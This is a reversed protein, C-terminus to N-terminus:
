PSKKESNVQEWAATEATGHKIGPYRTVLDNYVEFFRKPMNAGLGRVLQDIEIIELPKVTRDM